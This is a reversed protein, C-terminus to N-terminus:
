FIDKYEGAVKDAVEKKVEEQKEIEVKVNEAQEKVENNNTKTGLFDLLAVKGNATSDQMLVLVKMITEISGNLEDVKSTIKAIGDAGLDDFREKIEDKIKENFQKILDSTTTHKYKSYKLYITFLAGVLGIDTAWGIIKEILSKDIYQSLWDKIEEKMAEEDVVKEQVEPETIEIVEEENAFVLGLALLLGKM